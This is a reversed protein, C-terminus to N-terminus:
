RGFWHTCIAGVPMFLGARSHLFIFLKVGGRRRTRTLPLLHIMPIINYHLTVDAVAHRSVISNPFHIRNCLAPSLKFVPDNRQSPYLLGFLRNSASSQKARHGCEREWTRHSLLHHTMKVVFVQFNCSLKSSSKSMFVWLSAM